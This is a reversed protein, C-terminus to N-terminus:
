MEEDWVTYLYLRMRTPKKTQAIKGPSGLLQIGARELYSKAASPAPMHKAAAPHSSSDPQMAVQQPCVAWKQPWRWGRKLLPHGWALEGALPLGLQAGARKRLHKNQASRSGGARNFKTKLCKM